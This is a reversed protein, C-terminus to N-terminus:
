ATRLFDTIDLDYQVSDVDHVGILYLVYSSVCSGRGVGWVVNNKELTNIVYIIARLVPYLNLKQYLVLEENARDIRYKDEEVPWTWTEQLELLKNYIYLPVDLSEHEKPLNWSLDPDRCSPKVTLREEPPVLRNFKKIENTLERVYHGKPLKGLQIAHTLAAEDFSSDGDYWLDRDALTTKM